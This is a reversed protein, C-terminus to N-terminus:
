IRGSADGALGIAVAAGVPATGAAVGNRVVEMLSPISQQIQDRCARYTERSQGIPDDLEREEPSLGPQFERLMFTKEAAAPYLLLLSDLHGYTMVFICDAKRVMEQQIPRSRLGSIDLGKEKMVEVAYASPSQGDVAGIGASSVEISRDGNVQSRFLEEAM